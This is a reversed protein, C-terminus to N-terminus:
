VTPVDPQRQFGSFPRGDYAIRFARVTPIV